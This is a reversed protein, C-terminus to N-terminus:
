SQMNLHQHAARRMTEVPAKRGTWLEFQRAGQLVLMDVGYIVKCGLEKAESLLRTEHPSYVIDFVIHRAAILSSDLPTLESDPAMGVPTTNIIVDVSEMFSTTLDNLLVPRAAPSFIRIDGALANIRNENRGAIIVKAGQEALTFAIARASGGNGIVMCTKGELKIGCQEVALAAGFGDTNFGTIKGNNNVITNVSGIRGALPDVYDLDRIVDIKFPITVSAGRIALAKMARVAESISGPEFALYVANIGTESFAANHMFPSISHRVPNGFICYLETASNIPRDKMM